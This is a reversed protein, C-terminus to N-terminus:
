GYLEGLKNANYIDRITTNFPTDSAFIYALYDHVYHEDPLTFNAVQKSNGEQTYTKTVTVQHVIGGKLLPKIETYIINPGREMQLVARM